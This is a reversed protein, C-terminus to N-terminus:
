PQWGEIFETHLVAVHQAMDVADRAKKIDETVAPYKEAIAAALRLDDAANGLFRTMEELEAIQRRENASLERGM